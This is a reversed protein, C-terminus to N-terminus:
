RKEVLASKAGLVPLQHEALWGLPVAVALVAAALMAAVARAPSRRRVPEPGDEALALFARALPMSSTPERMEDPM